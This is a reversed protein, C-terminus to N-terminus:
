PNRQPNFESGELRQTTNQTHTHTHTIKVLVWSRLENEWFDKRRGDNM